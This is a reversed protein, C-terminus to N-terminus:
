PNMEAGPPEGQGVGLLRALRGAVLPARDCRETRRVGPRHDGIRAHALAIRQDRDIIDGWYDPNRPDTGALLGEELVAALDATRGSPLTLMTSKSNELWVAMLPAVRSFGEFEEAQRKGGAHLGPYRARANTPTAYTLFGEVVYGALALYDARAPKPLTTFRTVVAESAAPFRAAAAYPAKYVYWLGGAAIIAGALVAFLIFRRM